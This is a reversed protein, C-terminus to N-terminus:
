SCLKLFAAIPPFSNSCWDRKKRWDGGDVEPKRTQARSIYSATSHVAACDLRLTRTMLTQLMAAWEHGYRHCNFVFLQLRIPPKRPQFFMNSRLGCSQADPRLEKEAIAVRRLSYLYRVQVFKLSSSKM